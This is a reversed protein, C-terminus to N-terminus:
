QFLLTDDKAPMLRAVTTTYGRQWFIWGTAAKYMALNFSLEWLTVTVLEKVSNSLEDGEVESFSCAGM